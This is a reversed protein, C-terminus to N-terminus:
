RSLRQMHPHICIPIFKKHIMNDFSMWSKNIKLKNKFYQVLGIRLKCPSYECVRVIVCLKIQKRLAITSLWVLKQIFIPWKNRSDHLKVVKFLANTLSSNLWKCLKAYKKKKTNLYTPLCINLLYVLQCDGIHVIKADVNKYWKHTPVNWSFFQNQM